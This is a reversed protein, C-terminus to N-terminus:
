RETRTQRSQQVYRVSGVLGLVSGIVALFLTMLMGGGLLADLLVGIGLGALAPVVMLALVRMARGLASSMQGALADGNELTSLRRASRMALRYIAFQGAVAGVVLSILSAVPRTGLRADIWRGLVLGLVVCGAATLGMAMGLESALGITRGLRKM